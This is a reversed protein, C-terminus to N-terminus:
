ADAMQDTALVQYSRRTLMTTASTVKRTVSPALKRPEDANRWQAGLATAMDHVIHFLAVPTGADDASGAMEFTIEVTGTEADGRLAPDIARDDELLHETADNVFACMEDYTLARPEDDELRMIGLDCTAETSTKSMGIGSEDQM